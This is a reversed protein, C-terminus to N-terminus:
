SVEGPNERRQWESVYAVEEGELAARVRRKGREYHQRASGVSVQMVGAAEELTMDHYFVLELAERQRRALGGIARLFMARQQSRFVEEDPDVRHAPRHEDGAVKLALLRQLVVRRRRDTATNRILSFLWTRLSSQGRFQAKGELIKLYVTQLVEEADEPRRDCCALSWLYADAHHEELQGTIDPIPAIM